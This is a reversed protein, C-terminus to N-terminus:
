DKTTPTVAAIAATRFADAAEFAVSRKFLFDEEATVDHALLDSNQDLEEPTFPIAEFAAAPVLRAGQAAHLQAQAETLEVSQGFRALAYAYGPGSIASAAGVFYFIALAPSAPTGSTNM